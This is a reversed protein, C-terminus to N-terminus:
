SIYLAWKTKKTWFKQAAEVAAVGPQLDESRADDDPHPVREVSAKEDLPIEKEDERYSERDPTSPLTQIQDQVTAQIDFAPLLAM